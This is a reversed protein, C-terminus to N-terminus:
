LAGKKFHAMGGRGRFEDPDTLCPVGTTSDPESFSNLAEDIAIQLGFKLNCAYGELTGKRNTYRKITESM